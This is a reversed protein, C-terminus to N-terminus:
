RGLVRGRVVAHRRVSAALAARRHATDAHLVVPRRHQLIDVEVQMAPFEGGDDPFVARAFGRQDFAQESFNWVAALDVKEIGCV